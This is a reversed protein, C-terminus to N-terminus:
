EEFPEKKCDPCSIMSVDDFDLVEKCDLCTPCNITEKKVSIILLNNLTVDKEFKLFSTVGEESYARVKRRIVEGTPNERYEVQFTKNKM